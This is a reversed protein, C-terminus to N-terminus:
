RRSFNWATSSNWNYNSACSCLWASQWSNICHIENHLVLMSYHVNGFHWGIVKRCRASCSRDRIYLGPSKVILKLSMQLNNWIIYFTEHKYRLMYLTRFWNGHDSTMNMIHSIIEVTTNLRFSQLIISLAVQQHCSLKKNYWVTLCEKSYVTDLFFTGSIKKATVKVFISPNEYNKTCLKTLSHWLWQRLFKKDYVRYTAVMGHSLRGPSRALGGRSEPVLQRGVVLSGQEYIHQHYWRSPSWRM